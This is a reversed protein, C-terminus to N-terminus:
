LQQILFIIGLIDLAIVFVVGAAISTLEWWRDPREWSGRILEGGKYYLGTNTRSDM